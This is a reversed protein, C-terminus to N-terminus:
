RWWDLPCGSRPSRHRGPAPRRPHPWGCTRRARRRRAVGPPRRRRRGRQRRRCRTGAEIRCCHFCSRRQLVVGVQNAGVLARQAVREGQRNVVLTRHEERMFLPAVFVSGEDDIPLALPDRLTSEYSRVMYADNDLLREQKWQQLISLPFTIGVVDARGGAAAVVELDEADDPVDCMRIAADVGALAQAADIAASHIGERNTATVLAMGSERLARERLASREQQRILGAMRVVVLLFLIISAASLM